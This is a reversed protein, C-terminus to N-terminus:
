TLPLWGTDEFSTLDTALLGESSYTYLTEGIVLSREILPTEVMETDEFVVDDEIGDGEPMPTPRRVTTGPQSITAREVIGESVGVEFALAESRQGREYTSVPVVALGNHMLFAHHDFEAPSSGSRLNVQDIRRPDSLDSVDFLSIQTGQTMGTDTADQGVGILLGDGAPHLYASYGLIKLEGVVTPASPDSLDLTYLPDTQRFTVVYGVDDVFRVSHIEEGYGLGGVRGVEVLAEDSVELVTVFSESDPVPPPPAISLEDPEGPAPEEMPAVRDGDTQGTTAVRLYGDYESMSFQNLLTGPVTGSAKYEAGGPGTIDFSHVASTDDPLAVSGDDQNIDAYERTSVYLREASSYVTQGDSLVGTSGVPELGQEPDLTTVTLTGVGSFEPPQYVSACDVLRGSSVEDGNREVSYQPLWDDLDSTAIVARNAKEAENETTGFMHEFGSDGEYVNPYEYDLTTPQGATVLHIRGDVTRASVVRGEVHMEELVTPNAPDSVDVLTVTAGSQIPAEPIGVDGSGEGLVVIRDGILLMGSSFGVDVSGLLAPESGAAVANLSEDTLTFITSGDTKVIDPEDIGAEQVNTGSFDQSGGPVPASQEGAEPAAAVDGDAALEDATRVDGELAYYEGGDLGYPGVRAMAEAQIHGLLQDCDDFIQLRAALVLDDPLHRPQPGKATGGSNDCATAFLVVAAVAATLVTPIRRM